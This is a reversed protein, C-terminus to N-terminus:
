DKMAAVLDTSQTPPSAAKSVVTVASPSPKESTETKAVATYHVAPLPKAEPVLKAFTEQPLSYYDSAACVWEARHAVDNSGYALWIFGQEGWTPGWTNKIKWAGHSGRSDDWGVLLVAHKGKLDKKDPAPENFLGGQYARFKVTDTLDVVLPGHRLLAAKLEETTPPNEDPSVYGWAVARFPLPTDHPEAPKGTYPYNATRATGTKLFFDCARCPQATMDKADTVGLKLHDLVPQPSLVFRHNNRILNSCELAELASNAWCDETRQRHWESVKNLNCWDFAVITPKPLRLSADPLVGPHNKIFQTRAADDLALLHAALANAQQIEQKAPPKAYIMGTRFSLVGALAVATLINRTLSM